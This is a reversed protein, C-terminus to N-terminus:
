VDSQTDPISNAFAGNKIDCVKNEEEEADDLITEVATETPVTETTDAM